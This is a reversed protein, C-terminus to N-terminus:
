GRKMFAVVPKPLDKRVLQIPVNEGAQNIGLAVMMNDQKGIPSRGTLTFYLTAAMSYLDSSFTPAEGRAQEPAMYGVTGSIMGQSLMAAEQATTAIGFDAVKVRGGSSQLI